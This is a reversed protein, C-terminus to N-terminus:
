TPRATDAWTWEHVKVAQGPEWAFARAFVHPHLSKVAATFRDVPVGAAVLDPLLKSIVKVADGCGPAGDVLWDFVRQVEPTAGSVPPLHVEGLGRRVERGALHPRRRGRPGAVQLELPGGVRRRPGAAEADPLRPQRADAGHPLQELQRRRREVGADAEVAGRRRRRGPEAKAPKADAKVPAGTVVKGNSLAVYRKATKDAKAADDLALRCLTPWVEMVTGVGVRRREDTTAIKDGLITLEVGVQVGHQAGAKVFTDGKDTFLEVETTQALAATGLLGWALALARM